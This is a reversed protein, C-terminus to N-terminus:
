RGELWAQRRGVADPGAEADPLLRWGAPAPAITLPLRLLRRRRSVLLTVKTGPPYMAVRDAWGGPPVRVDDLAIVEDDTNVGAEWAPGDRHVRDVVQRGGDDRVDLGAQSRADAPAFRLGLWRLAPGYDLEGTGDVAEALFGGMPAAEELVARLEAPTYPRRAEGFRAWAARMADDLSRRGGSAARIRADLLFGLAAGKAYYSVTSNDTNEDPRYYKIWADYSAQALSTVRRGPARQLDEIRRSLFRLEDDDSALGARRVILGDFYATVGEVFWLDPTPQEREFDYPWLGAPRMRKVNWAHFLEHAALRLWDLYLDPRRQDFRSAMVVQSDAHELGGPVGTLLDFFVYRDYPLAGWFRREERVIKELDAAARAGDWLGDAGDIVLLHEKGDVEFRRVDPSGAFIPADVLRDFDSARFHNASGPLASVSTRWGAPLKVDVEYPSGLMDIPALYVGAGNLLAFTDGVWPTRVGMEGAYLRYRVTAPGQTAVRWRNKAVKEVPLPRGAADTATVAEVNREHERVVYSGPTWVPMMLVLADGSPAPYHAEIEAYHHAHEPFRVTYRVPAAALILALLPALSV